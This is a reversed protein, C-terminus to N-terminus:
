CQPSTSEVSVQEHTLAFGISQERKTIFVLSFEAISAFRVLFMASALLSTGIGLSLVSQISM